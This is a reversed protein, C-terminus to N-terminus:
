QQKGGTCIDRTRDRILYGNEYIKERIKRCNASDKPGSPEAYYTGRGDRTTYLVPKDAMAAQRAGRLSVDSITAGNIVGTIDGIVGGRWSNGRDLIAKGGAATGGHESTGGESRFITCSTTATLAASLLIIVFGRLFIMGYEKGYKSKRTCFRRM